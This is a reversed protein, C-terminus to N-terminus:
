LRDASRDRAEAPLLVRRVADTSVIGAMYDRKTTNLIPNKNANEDKWYENQDEILSDIDKDITNQAKRQFERVSRYGEYARATLKQKKQILKNFVITEIESVSIKENDKNEEYIEDAIDQAIKGKVIGLSSKMAKSIACVIKEGNFDVETGDRKIVIM